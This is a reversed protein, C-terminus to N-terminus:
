TLYHFMDVWFHHGLGVTFIVDGLVGHLVSTFLVSKTRSYEYAFYLGALLTLIISIWIMLNGRPLNFLNEPDFLLVSGLLLLSIVMVLIGNKVLLKRSINWAILERFRFSTTFRLLLFILLLVPLIVITPHLIGTGFVIFLPVGFFLLAFEVGLLILKLM